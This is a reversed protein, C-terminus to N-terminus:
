SIKSIAVINQVCAKRVSWIPDLVLKLFFPLFRQRFFVDSVVNGVTALSYVAEKRVILEPDEGM